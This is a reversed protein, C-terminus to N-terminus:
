PIIRANLQVSQLIDCFGETLVDTDLFSVFLEEPNFFLGVTRSAV